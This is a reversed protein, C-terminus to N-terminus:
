RGALGPCYEAAAARRPRLVRSEVADSHDPARGRLCLHGLAQVRHAKGWAMIALVMWLM